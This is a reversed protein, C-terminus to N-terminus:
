WLGLTDRPHTSELEIECKTQVCQKGNNLSTVWEIPDFSNAMYENKLSAPFSGEMMYLCWCGDEKRIAQSGFLQKHHMNVLYRDLTLAM